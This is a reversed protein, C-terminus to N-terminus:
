ANYRAKLALFERAVEQSVSNEVSGRVRKFARDVIPNPKFGPHEVTELYEGGSILLAKGNQGKITHPASGAIVIFPYRAKNVVPVRRVRNRDEIAQKVDFTAYAAAIKSNRALVAQVSNRMAGTYSPTEAKIADAFQEAGREFIPRLIQPAATEGVLASFTILEGVGEVKLNALARSPEM